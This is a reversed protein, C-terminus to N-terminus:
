GTPASLKKLHSPQSVHSESDNGAESVFSPVQTDQQMEPLEEPVHLSVNLIEVDRFDSSENFVEANFVVVDKLTRGDAFGIDVRQYGMGSEPLELLHEIWRDSLKIDM